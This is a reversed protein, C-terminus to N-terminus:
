SPCVRVSAGSPICSSSRPLTKVYDLARMVRLYMEKFYFRNRDTKNRHRYDKLEGKALDAYFQAPKGNEIGHANVDFHIYRTGAGHQKHASRVGAGHYSGVAPLSGKKANKPMCLYGSVPM